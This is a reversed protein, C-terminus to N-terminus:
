INKCNCFDMIVVDYYNIKIAFISNALIYSDQIIIIQSSLPRM